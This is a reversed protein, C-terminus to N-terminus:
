PCTERYPEDAMYQQWETETLNRNAIRCAREIWSELAFDWLIITNGGGGSALITGDLSFTLQRVGVVHGQLPLGFPQRSNVDWIVIKPQEGSTGLTPDEGVALLGDPGFDASIVFDDMDLAQGVPEGTATDQLTIRRDASGITAFLDLDPSFAGVGLPGGLVGVLSLSAIPEATAVNWLVAGSEGGVAVIKGGQSFALCSVYDGEPGALPPTLQQGTTADWLMVTGERSRAALTKSSPSFALDTISGQEIAAFVQGPFPQEVMNWLFVTGSVDGSALLSGDPSFTLSTVRGTHGVLPPALSQGSNADLLTVTNDRGIALITHEGTHLAFGSFRDEFHLPRGLSRSGAIDWLIIRDDQSFSSIQGGASALLIGEPHFAVERVADTHGLLPQGLPKGEAVDWLLVSKDSSGSALIMGDPSFAVSNISAEHGKLPSTLLQGSALDWLLVNNEADSSALAHGDPSFAVTTIPGEQDPRFSHVVQGNQVNWLIIEGGYGASALITGAPNFAIDYAYREDADIPSGLMQRSAVDWLVITGDVGSSALMKGDPSYAVSLVDNAHGDLPPGLPERSAVDWLTITGDGSGSALTEGDPSFALARVYAYGRTNPPSFVALQIGKDVDWLHIEGQSCLDFAVGRTIESCGGSALLKGDPSFSVSTAYSTHGHLFTTLRPSYTLNTFLADRAELTDTIRFAEISLLLALPLDKDVNNNARAALQRSRAIAAKAVAEGEAQIARTSEAEATRRLDGETQSRDYQFLSFLAAVVLILVVAGVTIVMQRLRSRKRAAISEALFGQEQPNMEGAHTQAWEEAEALRVGHYLYSRDGEGREWDQAAETLRRHILLGARDVNVWEQLRPWGRILAEHAVDIVNEGTEEERATTLLRADALQHVVQEVMKARSPEPILESQAARRRTDETGEGPQTLRLMVQRTVQQQEPSFGAYIQEARHALAGQVGGIEQYADFTLWQGRRRQWLEWLTHQLLPLTGPEDGLSEIIIDILGKEYNLGVAQAPGEMARRLDEEDMPGVLVDRDSLRAALQPYHACKGFFDARITLVVVTQGGAIGSAYLLNDIFHARAVEDQCLTFLEELQDVVLLLRQNDSATALAGQVAQHLGREGQLEKSLAEHTAFFEGERGLQPLLRAALAELPHPGPKLVVVPWYESGELAGRRVEPLLGARVLSSKGSGSPGIVALFRDARLQEVLYQTLAERGFFFPAHEEEFVQLGRFPCAAKSAEEPGPAIGQIGCVLRHFAEADDLGPRFDVWTHRALFHPLRGREPLQAGPLLVPIVRYDPRSARIHLAARMEENEWTGLGSPGLFVACCLSADLAEELAEQWTAGPVLHWRDLFPKLGAEERLRRAIAEVAAHDASNYSLFVDYLTKEVM